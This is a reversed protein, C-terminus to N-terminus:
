SPYKVIKKRFKDLDICAHPVKGLLKVSKQVYVKFWGLSVRGTVIEKIELSTRPKGSVIM